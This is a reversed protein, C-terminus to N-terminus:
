EYVPQLSLALAQAANNWTIQMIRYNGKVQIRGFDINIPLVDGTSILGLLQSSVTLNLMTVPEGRLLEEEHARANLWGLDIIQGSSIVKTLRGYKPSGDVTLDEYHGVVKYQVDPEAVTDTITGGTNYIQTAQNLTSEKWSSITEVFRRGRQDLELRYEPKYSGKTPYYPWFERRGDDYLRVDFDFGQYLKPFEQLADYVNEFSDRFVTRSRFVGSAGFSGTDIRRDGNPQSQAWEVMQVAIYFQDQASWHLLPTDPPIIGTGDYTSFYAYEFYSLLGEAEFVIKETNGSVGRPVVCHGLALSENIWIQLECLSLEIMAADPSLPDFSIKAHGPRNLAWTVEEVTAGVLEKRNNGSLDTWFVDVRAGRPEVAPNPIAEGGWLISDDWLISDEWLITM